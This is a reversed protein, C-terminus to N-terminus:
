TGLYERKYILHQQYTKSYHTVGNYDALYYLYQSPTPDAAAKLSDLSPSGIPSPPLGKHIYTNYPSDTTLDKSTLLFTAKGVTYLFTVDVQLPMGRKIRNWLVGAIMKRDTTNRAEREVISAMTVIDALSHTSSAVLPAIEAEHIDFNQRMTKLVTDETANPLFFYTDPFLYGEQPQAKELFKQPDFRLLQSAFIIAMSRTTSGEAIRIKVPELGFAGISIARSISFVDKPEKFLYDGAHITREHGLLTVLVRFALASRVVGDEQLIAATQKLTSGEPVSVLEGVPFKNPPQILAIYAFTAICGALIVTLITRRNAHPRWRASLDSQLQDSTDFFKQLWKIFADM